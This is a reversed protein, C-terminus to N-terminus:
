QVVAHDSLSDRSDVVRIGGVVDTRVRAGPAVPASCGVFNAESGEVFVCYIDPRGRLRFKRKFRFWRSREAVRAKPKDKFLLLDGRDDKIPNDEVFVVTGVFEGHRYLAVANGNAVPNACATYAGLGLAALALLSLFVKM